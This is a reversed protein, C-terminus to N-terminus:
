YILFDYNLPPSNKKLFEKKEFNPLEKKLYVLINRCFVQAQISTKKKKKKKANQRDDGDDEKRRINSDVAERDRM